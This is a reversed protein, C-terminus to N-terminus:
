LRHLVYTPKNEPHLDQPFPQRTLGTLVVASAIGARNAGRVDTHLQDGIMVAQSAPVGARSLAMEFMLNEPKGLVEFKLGLSPHIQELGLELLRGLSGSTFGFARPGRPFLLDSNALLLRPRHGDLIMRHLSTLVTELMTWPDFGSDDGIVLAEYKADEHPEVLVGGANRVYAHTDPTGLVLCRPATLGDRRFAEGIALGATLVREVPIPLGCQKYFAAATEPLRSADNTVVFYPIGRSALEALFERAGPLAGQSTVLVGYADLLFLRHRDMLAAATTQTM